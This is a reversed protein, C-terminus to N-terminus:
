NSNPCKISTIQRKKFQNLRHEYKLSFQLCIWYHIWDVFLLILDWVSDFLDHIFPLKGILSSLIGFLLTTVIEDWINCKFLTFGYSSSFEKLTNVGLIVIAASIIYISLSVFRILSKGILTLHQHFRNSSYLSHNSITKCPHKKSTVTGRIINTKLFRVASGWNPFQIKRLDTDETHTSLYQVFHIEFDEWFEESDICTFRKSIGNISNETTYNHCMDILMKEVAKIEESECNYKILKHWDSRLNINYHNDPDPKEFKEKLQLINTLASEFIQNSIKISELNAYKGLPLKKTLYHDLVLDIYKSLTSLGEKRAPLYPIEYMDIHIILKIYNIIKELNKIKPLDKIAIQKQEELLENLLNLDNYKLSRIIKEMLPQDMPDIPWASFIFEPNSNSENNTSISNVTTDTTTQQLNNICKEVANIIYQSATRYNGYLSIKIKGLKFLELIQSHQKKNELVCLFAKSDALQNFTLVVTNGKVFIEDYMVKQGLNIEHPSTRVSDLEFLYVLKNM